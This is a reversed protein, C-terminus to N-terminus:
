SCHSNAKKVALRAVVVKAEEQEEGQRQEGAPDHTRSMGAVNYTVMGGAEWETEEVVM